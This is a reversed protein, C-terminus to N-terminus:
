FKVIRDYFILLNNLKLHRSSQYFHPFNFGISIFKERWSSREWCKQPFNESQITKVWSIINSNIYKSQAFSGLGLGTPFHLPQVGFRNYKGNLSIEGRNGQSLYSSFM